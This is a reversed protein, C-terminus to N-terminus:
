ALKGTAGAQEIVRLTGRWLEFPVDATGVIERARAIADGDSAADIDSGSRIAGTAPNLQYLRYHM